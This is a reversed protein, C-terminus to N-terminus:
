DVQEFVSWGTDSLYKEFDCFNTLRTNHKTLKATHAKMADKWKRKMTDNYMIIWEASEDEDDHVNIMMSM